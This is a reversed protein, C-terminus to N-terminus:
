VPELGLAERQLNMEAVESQQTTVISQALDTLEGEHGHDVAYQSMHLGGRHHLIMLRSFLDDLEAGTAADLEDLEEDTAMGPQEDQPVPAMGMWGMATDLDLDPDGWDALYQGLLRSEGAQVRVIEEAMFRLTPDTGDELYSLAMTVGQNHHSRMDDAFGVDVDNPRPEHAWQQWTYVAAGTLFMLAVTVLVARGLDVVRGGVLPELDGDLDEDEVPDTLARVPEPHRIPLVV